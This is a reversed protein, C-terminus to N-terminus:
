ILSCVYLYGSRPKTNGQFRLHCARAGAGGGLGLSVARGCAVRGVGGAGGVAARGAVARRIVGGVLEGDLLEGRLDPHGHAVDAVVVRAPQQRRGLDSRADAVVAGLVDRPQPQDEVQLGVAEVEGGDLPQEAARVPEGLAQEPQAARDGRWELGLRGLDDGGLLEGRAEAVDVGLVDLAHARSM